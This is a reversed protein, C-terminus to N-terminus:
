SNTKEEHKPIIQSSKLVSWTVIRAEVVVFMNFERKVNTPIM